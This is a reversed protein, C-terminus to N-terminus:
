SIRLVEATQEILEKSPANKNQSSVLEILKYLNVKKVAAVDKFVPMFHSHCGAFGLVLEEPKIASQYGYALMQPALEDDIFSLLGYYDVETAVALRQFVVITAETPINGASRAMGMLGCDISVAGADVAAIANAVALGLNNHGHFGVPIEVAKAVAKVYETVQSPLMYGASDMITIGKAGCAAIKVAEQALERPSLVYAKMLSYRPVIGYERVMRIALEAQSAEGANAGIRLFNLEKKAAMKVSKETAYKAQLFMGLEAQNKYPLALDLYEEDSLPAPSAGKETAGIGHAHGMEVVKINSKILGELILKTLEASFGSGVVNAGDRLHM